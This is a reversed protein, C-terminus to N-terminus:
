NNNDTFQIAGTPCAKLCKGCEICSDHSIEPANFGQQSIAAVPCVPVAPCPHNQPCRYKIVSPKM